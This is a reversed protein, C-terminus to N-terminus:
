MNRLSPSAERASTDESEQRTSDPELFHSIQKHIHAVLRTSDATMEWIQALERWDNEKGSDCSSLILAPGDGVGYAKVLDKNGPLEYDFAGWLLQGNELQNAFDRELVERVLEEMMLCTYCRLTRHFYYAAVHPEKERKGPCDRPVSASTFAVGGLM